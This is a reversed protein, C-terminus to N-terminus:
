QLMSSPERSPTGTPGPGFWLGLGPAWDERRGPSGGACRWDQLTCSQSLGVVVWAELLAFLPERSAEPHPTHLSPCPLWPEQSFPPGTSSQLPLQGSVRSAPLSSATGPSWSCVWCAARTEWRPSRPGLLPLAPGPRQGPLLAAGPAAPLAPAPEAAAGRESGAPAWHPAPSVALGRTSHPLSVCVCMYM